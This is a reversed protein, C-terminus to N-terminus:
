TSTTSEIECMLFYYFLSFLVHIIPDLISSKTPPFDYPVNILSPAHKNSYIRTTCIVEKNFEQLKNCIDTENGSEFATATSLILAEMIVAQQSTVRGLSPFFHLNQCMKLFNTLFPCFKWRYDSKIIIRSWKSHDWCTIPYVVNHMASHTRIRHDLIILRIIFSLHGRLIAFMEKWFCFKWPILNGFEVYM